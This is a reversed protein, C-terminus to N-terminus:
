ERIEEDEIEEVLDFPTISRKLLFM